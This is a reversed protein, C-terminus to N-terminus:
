ESFLLECVLNGPFFNGSRGDAMFAGTKGLPAERAVIGANCVLPLLVGQDMVVLGHYYVDLLLSEHNEGATSVRPGDVANAVGLLQGSDLLHISHKASKMQRAREKLRADRGGDRREFCEVRCQDHRGMAGSPLRGMGQGPFQRFRKDGVADTRAEHESLYVDPRNLILQKQVHGRQRILGRAVILKCVM